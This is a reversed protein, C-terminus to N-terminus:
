DVLARGDYNIFGVYSPFVILVGLSCIRLSLFLFNQLAIMIKM